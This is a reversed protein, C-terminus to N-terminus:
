NETPLKDAHDVVLFDVPGSTTQLRLGLQDQVARVLTPSGDEAWFLRIDYEGNLGTQDSVPRHLQGAVTRALQAMTM